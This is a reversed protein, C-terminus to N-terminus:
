RMPLKRAWGRTNSRCGHPGHGLELALLVTEVHEATLEYTGGV